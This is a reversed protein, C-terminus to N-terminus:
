KICISDSNYKCTLGDKTPGLTCKGDHNYKCQWHEKATANVCRGSHIGCEGERDYKCTKCKKVIKVGTQKTNKQMKGTVKDSM